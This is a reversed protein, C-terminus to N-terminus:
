WGYWWAPRVRVFPRRYIIVPDVPEIPAVVVARPMLVARPAVVVRPRYVIVAADAANALAMVAFLGIILSKRM